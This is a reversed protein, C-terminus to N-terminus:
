FMDKGGRCFPNNRLGRGVGGMGCSSVKWDINTCKKLHKPRVSGGGGGGGWSIGIGRLPPHSPTPCISIKQVLVNGTARLSLM